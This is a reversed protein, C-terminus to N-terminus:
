VRVGCCSGPTPMDDAPRARELPLGCGADISGATTLADRVVAGIRQLSALLRAGSKTDKSDM